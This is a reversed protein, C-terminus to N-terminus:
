KRGVIQELVKRKEKPSLNRIHSCSDKVSEYYEDITKVVKAPIGIAVSNSPISRTVIAGAGIISNDGITVNSLIIAGAGIFVNNGITIATNLGNQSMPRLLEIDKTSMFGVRMKSAPYNQARSSCVFILLMLFLLVKNKLM